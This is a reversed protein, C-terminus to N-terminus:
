ITVVLKTLSIGGRLQQLADPISALGTGVITADPSARYVGSALATPLFDAYIAPGVENDKLTGGWITSVRVGHRRALRARVNTVPGPHASSVRKTGDTRRSIEISPALSGAGIALVGALPHDGIAAVVDDVVSKSNRDVVAAAGLSRLYEFGRPSSTAVVRYGANRVLQIANIGVSTSGGWVLVTESRAAPNATPLALGLQDRQFLGCSATSMALPLVSAQEYSLSDPIGSVMHDMLVVYNQFAGEAPTNRSKEPGVAHGVVRDGVHLRTVASGVEVIEGAADSGIVAPFRLWPLIVRYAIGPIADVFNVAVARVRVVVENAKPPTFPAPGVEFKAGPRALWLATNELTMREVSSM